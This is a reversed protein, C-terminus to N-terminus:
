PSRLAGIAAEPTPAALLAARIEPHSLREALESLIQLHLDTAQEPVLLAVVLQVPQGDLADFPVPAALRLLALRPAKLGAIRAHPIAIGAGLGTSGLRERELLAQLLKQASLGEAVFAEAIRELVRKKSGAEVDLAVQAQELLPLLANM